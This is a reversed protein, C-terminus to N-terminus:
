PKKPNLPSLSDLLFGFLYFRFGLCSDQTDDLLKEIMVVSGGRDLLAM